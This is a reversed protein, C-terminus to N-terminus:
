SSDGRGQAARGAGGKWMAGGRCNRYGRGTGAERDAEIAGGRCHVVLGVRGQHGAGRNIYRWGHGAGATRGKEAPQGRTADTRTPPM